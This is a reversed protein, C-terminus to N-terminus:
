NRLCKRPLNIGAALLCASGCPRADQQKAVPTNAPAPRYPELARDLLDRLVASRNAPLGETTRRRALMDLAQCQWNELVVSVRSV